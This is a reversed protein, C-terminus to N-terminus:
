RIETKKKHKKKIVDKTEWKVSCKSGEEKEEAKASRHIKIETVCREETHEIGETQNEEEGKRRKEKKNNKSKSKETKVKVKKLKRERDKETEGCEEEEVNRVTKRRRKRETEKM